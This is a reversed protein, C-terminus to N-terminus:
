RVPGKCAHQPQQNETKLPNKHIFRRTETDLHKKYKKKSEKEEKQNSQGIEGQKNQIIM